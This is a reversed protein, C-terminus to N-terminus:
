KMCLWMRLTYAHKATVQRRRKQCFSRPKKRTVATVYILMMFPLSSLHLYFFVNRHLQTSQCAWAQANGPLGIPNRSIYRYNNQTHLHDSTSSCNSSLSVSLHVKGRTDVRRDGRCRFSTMRRSSTSGSSILSSPLSTM